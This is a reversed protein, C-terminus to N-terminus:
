PLRVVKLRRLLNELYKKGEMAEEEVSVGTVDVCVAGDFGTDRLACLIEVWDLEGQGPAWHYSTVGDNESAHFEYLKGRLKHISISPVERIIELHSTDLLGGLNECSVDQILRLIADTNSIMERPRSEIALRLSWDELEATVTRVLDVYRNWGSEWSFYPLLTVSSPPAGPYVRSPRSVTAPILPSVTGITKAGVADAFSSLKKAYKRVFDPSKSFWNAIFDCCLYDISVDNNLCAARLERIDKREWADLRSEDAVWSEVSHFGLGSAWGLIRSFGEIDPGSPPVEIAGENQLSLRWYTQLTLAACATKMGGADRVEVGVWRQQM